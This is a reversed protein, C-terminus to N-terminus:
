ALCAAPAPSGRDRRGRQDAGDERRLVCLGGCRGHGAAAASRPGALNGLWFTGASALAAVSLTGLNFLARHIPPKRATSDIAVCVFAMALATRFDFLAGGTLAGVAGVSVSGEELDLALVQAVGVLAVAGVMGLVDTSDGLVIGVAGATIGAAAVWGVLVGLRRSLTLLRPGRVSQRPRRRELVVPLSRFRRDTEADEPPLTVM